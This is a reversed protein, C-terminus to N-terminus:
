VCKVSLGGDVVLETGTVYKAEDSALFLAAYAVDWADGMRGMPCQENRVRLMEDIDGGAYIDKLPERIMPTDLLGPLIANARINRDAYELAISRTFPVIAGKSTAYTLYPIGAWRIGAVSSINVIAGGGQAVMHPVVAKCTMFMGRLNVAMVRDWDNSEVEELGGVEVIGVNNHLIDIRGYREICGDVMARIQEDDAIDACHAACEGGEDAIISCTEEAAQLNRDVAFVRAGERAYLVAAAKGNGWGAGVSGAGVVCAVKDQVRGM